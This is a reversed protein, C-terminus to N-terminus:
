LIDRHRRVPEIGGECSEVSCIGGYRLEV